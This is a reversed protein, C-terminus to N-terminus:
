RLTERSLINLLAILVTPNPFDTLLLNVTKSTSRREVNIQQPQGYIARIDALPITTKGVMLGDLALKVHKFELTEGRELREIQQPLLAQTIPHVLLQYIEIASAYFQTLRIAPVDGVYFTHVGTHLWTILGWLSYNTFQGQFRTFEDWRWGQERGRLRLAVGREYVRLRPNQILNTVSPILTLSLTLLILVVFLWNWASGGDDLGWLWVYIASISVMLMLRRVIERYNLGYERMPLGLDPM